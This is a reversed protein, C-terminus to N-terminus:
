ILSLIQEDEVNSAVHQDFTSDYIQTSNSIAAGYTTDTITDTSINIEVNEAGVNTDSGNSHYNNIRVQDFEISVDFVCILRQNTTSSLSSLWDTSSSTGIKSVSTDFAYKVDWSAGQNTTSYATFDSETLILKAGDKWFDISRVGVFLSNGWNDAIDLIVSKATYYEGPSTTTTTSSQTNTTSSTSSSVTSFTTSTTSQTSSTTSFTSSTTSQTNTTSSSSTTSSQTNTTSSSSTTSSQTNTTSSSSTTSSQTNTTSSSSTTSSQTNTTTSSVTSSTSSTSSVTSSSSSTSSNTTTSGAGVTTTTTTITTTTIDDTSFISSFLLDVESVDESHIRFSIEDSDFRVLWLFSVQLNALEAETIAEGIASDITIETSSPASVIRRYVKTNDPFTFQAYRGMLDNIQWYTAWEIDNIDFTTELADFASTIEIDRQNSPFWFSHLRGKHEDFFGILKSQTEKDKALFKAGSKITSETIQSESYQKGYWSLLEYPHNIQMNFDQVWNPTDDLVYKGQYTDYGSISVPENPMDTDIAETAEIEIKGTNSSYMGIRQTPQLRAKFLPYVSTNVLWGTSLNETLTIENVNISDIEGIEYTGKDVYIIVLSSARFNRYAAENVNIIPQGSNAQATLYTREHWYPIGWVNHLNKYLKRKIYNSEAASTETLSYILSNRPWSFLGSRTESGKISFQFRTDWTRKYFIPLKWDPQQLLYDTIALTM